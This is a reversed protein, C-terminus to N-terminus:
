GGEVFGATGFKVSVGQGGEGNVRKVWRRGREESSGVIRGESEGTHGRGREDGYVGKRERFGSWVGM